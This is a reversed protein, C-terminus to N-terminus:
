FSWKSRQSSSPDHTVLWQDREPLLWILLGLCTWRSPFCHGTSLHVVVVVNRFNICFLEWEKQKFFFFDFIQTVHINSQINVPYTNTVEIFAFLLVHKYNIRKKEQGSEGKRAWPSPAPTWGLQMHACAPDVESHSALEDLAMDSCIHTRYRAWPNKALARFTDQCSGWSWFEKWAKDAKPSSGLVKQKGAWDGVTKLILTIYSM